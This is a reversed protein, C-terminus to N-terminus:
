EFQKKKKQKIELTAPVTPATTVHGNSTTFVRNCLEDAKKGGRKELLPDEPFLLKSAVRNCPSCLFLNQEVIKFRLGCCTRAIEDHLIDDLAGDILIICHKRCMTSVSPGRARKLPSPGFITPTAGDRAM